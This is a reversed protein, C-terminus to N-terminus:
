TKESAQMRVPQRASRFIDEVGSKALPPLNEASDMVKAAPNPFMTEKATAIPQKSFKDVASGAFKEVAPGFKRGAEPATAAILSPASEVIMGGVDRRQAANALRDPDIGVAPAITSAATEIPGAGREKAGLYGQTAGQALDAAMEYPANPSLNGVQSAVGYAVKGLGKAVGTITDVVGTKQNHEKEFQTPEASKERLNDLVEKPVAGTSSIAGHQKALADYDIGGPTSSTAGYQKALADYDINGTNSM